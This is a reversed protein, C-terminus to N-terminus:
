AGLFIMMEHLTKGSRLYSDHYFPPEAAQLGFLEVDVLIMRCLIRAAILLYM